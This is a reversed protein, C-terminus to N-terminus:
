WTPCPTARRAAAWLPVQPLRWSPSRRWWRWWSPSPRRTRGRREPTTPATPRGRRAHRGHRRRRSSRRHPARRRGHRADRREHLRRGPQHAPRGPLRQACPAHGQRHRLARCPKEGHGEHHHGRADSRHRPQDRAAARAPREGAEHGRERRRPRRVASARHRRRVARHRALLHRERRHARQGAGTRSLHLAGHGARQLNADERLEERTRHRLGDGERQRRAAGHHEAAQHRPPHHGARARRFASPVGALRDRGDQAPQHRRARQHRNQPRKRARVGDRHLLHRRGPGLRVRERHLPKAPERRRRGRAQLAPHLRPRGRLVNDQARYVEAMGGIGIRETIQYRNNFVRGIMSGTM